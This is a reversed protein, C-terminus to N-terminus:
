QKQALYVAIREQDEREKENKPYLELVIFAISQAHRAYVIRLKNGRLAACPIRAKFIKVAAVSKLLTYNKHTAPFGKEGELMLTFKCFRELDAPLSRYKRCLREFDREASGFFSYNTM